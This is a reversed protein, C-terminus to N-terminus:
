EKSYAQRYQCLQETNLHCFSIELLKPTQTHMTCYTKVLLVGTKMIEKTMNDEQRDWASQYEDLM